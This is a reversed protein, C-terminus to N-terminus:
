FLAAEQEGTAQRSWPWASAALAARAPGPHGRSTALWGASATTGTRLMLM